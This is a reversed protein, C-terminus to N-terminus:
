LNQYKDYVCRFYEQLSYLQQAMTVKVLPDTCEQSRSRWDPDHKQPTIEASEDCHNNVGLLDIKKLVPSIPAEVWHQFM